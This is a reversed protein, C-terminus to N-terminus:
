VEEIELIKSKLKQVILETTEPTLWGLNDGPTDPLFKRQFSEISRGTELNHRENDDVPYGLHKMFNRIVNQQRPTLSYLSARKAHATYKISDLILKLSHPIEVEEEVTETPAITPQEVIETVAISRPTEIAQVQIPELIPLELVYEFSEEEEKKPSEIIVMVAAGIVASFVCAMTWLIIVTDEM